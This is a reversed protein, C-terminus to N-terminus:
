KVTSSGAEANKQEMLEMCILEEDSPSGNVDGQPFQQDARIVVSYYHDDDALRYIYEGCDRFSERIELKELVAAPIADVSEDNKYFDVIADIQTEWKIVPM